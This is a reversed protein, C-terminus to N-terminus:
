NANPPTTNQQQTDWPKTYAMEEVTATSNQEEAEASDSGEAVVTEIWPFDTSASNPPNRLSHHTKTYGASNSEPAGSNLNDADQNREEVEQSWFDTDVEAEEEEERPNKMDVEAVVKQAAEEEEQELTNDMKETSGTYGFGARPAGVEVGEM